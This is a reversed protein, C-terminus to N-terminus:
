PKSLEANLTLDTSKLVSSPAGCMSRTTKPCYAFM